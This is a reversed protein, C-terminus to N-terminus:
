GRGAGAGLYAAIVAPDHRVAQPTGTAIVRGFNLVVIKSCVHMVLDMDHEVLMVALDSSCM